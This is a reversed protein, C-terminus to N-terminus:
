SHPADDGLAQRLRVYARHARLKVATPSIGLIEGAQQMSFGEIRHLEFAVRQSDPMEELARQLRAAAQKASLVCEAGAFIAPLIEGGDEFYRSELRRRRSADILLHRAVGFVWPLVHAGPRFSGRARHIHEMTQQLLDEAVPVSGLHRRLYRFLRPAVADYVIEFASNQGEAYRMMAADIREDDPPECLREVAGERM